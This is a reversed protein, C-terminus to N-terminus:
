EPKPPICNQLTRATSPRPRWDEGELELLDFACLFAEGDHARSHVKEFAAVGVDDCYVAEGITV